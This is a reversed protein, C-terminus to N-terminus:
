YYPTVIVAEPMIIKAAAWCRTHAYCRVYLIVLQTYLYLATRAFHVCIFWLDNHRRGDREDGLTCLPQLIRRYTYWFGNSPLLLIHYAIRAAAVVAPAKATATRHSRAPPPSSSPNSRLVRISERTENIKFRRPIPPFVNVGDDNKTKESAICGISFYNSELSGTAVPM